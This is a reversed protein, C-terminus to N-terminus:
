QDATEANKYRITYRYKGMVGVPSIRQLPFGLANVALTESTTKYGMACGKAADCYRVTRYLENNTTLANNMDPLLSGLVGRNSSALLAALIQFEKSEGFVNKQQDFKQDLIEYYGQPNVEKRKKSEALYDINGEADLFTGGLSTNIRVPFGREDLAFSIRQLERGNMMLVADLKRGNYQLDFGAPQGYQAAVYHAPDADYTVASLGIRTLVNGAYTFTVWPSVPKNGAPPGLLSDRVSLLRDSDDYNFISRYRLTSLNGESEQYDIFAPLTLAYEPSLKESLDSCSFIAPCVLLFFKLYRTVSFHNM